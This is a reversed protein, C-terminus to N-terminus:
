LEPENDNEEIYYTNSMCQVLVGIIILPTLWLYHLDEIIAFFVIVTLIGLVNYKSAKFLEWGLLWREKFEM